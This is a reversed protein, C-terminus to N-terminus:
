KYKQKRSTINIGLIIKHKSSYNNSFLERYSGLDELYLSTLIGEPFIFITDKEFDPNSLKILEM